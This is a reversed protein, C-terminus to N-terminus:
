RAPSTWWGSWATARKQWFSVSPSLPPFSTLSLQEGPTDQADLRCASHSPTRPLVCLKSTRVDFPVISSARGTGGASADSIRLDPRVLAHREGESVHVFIGIARRKPIRSRVETRRVDIVGFPDRFRLDNECSV